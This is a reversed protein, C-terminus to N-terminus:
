ECLTVDGVSFCRTEVRRRLNWARVIGHKMGRAAKAATYLLPTEGEEDLAISTIPGAPCDLKTDAISAHSSKIVPSGIIRGSNVDWELVSGDLSGSLVRDGTRSAVVSTVVNKHGLFDRVAKGARVDWLKLTADASATLLMAQRYFCLDSLGQKHGVFNDILIGREIDWRKAVCDM